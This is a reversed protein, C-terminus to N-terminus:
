ETFYLIHGRERHVYLTDNIREFGEKLIFRMFKPATYENLRVQYIRKHPKKSIIRALMEYLQFYIYCSLGNSQQLLVFREISCVRAEGLVHHVRM